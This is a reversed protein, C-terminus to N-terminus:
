YIPVYIKQITEEYEKEWQSRATIGGGAKFCTTGQATDIFRIMVASDMRGGSYVGMVGTYFGRAFDEAEAIIRQTMPKPAGTISGAPLQSFLIDGLRHRYDAPLRGTIRSSTQFIDGRNTRLLEAYRYNEVTVHDAVMSLDNRILDVITAHEAMEKPDHMLTALADPHAADITGKMPCCSIQGRDIQIFTEPSFCVCEGRLWLRYKAQSLRFVSQLDLNTKVPICSTLNVLYSDGRLLHRRVVDFRRRYSAAAEADVEWVIAGPRDCPPMGDVNGVWGFDYWVEDRPVESLPWLRCDTQDYSVVFLFPVDAAGWRNM